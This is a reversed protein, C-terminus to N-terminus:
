RKRRARVEGTWVRKWGKLGFFQKMPEGLKASKYSLAFAPKGRGARKEGTGLLFQPLEKRGGGEPHPRPPPAPSPRPSPLPSRSPSSGGGGLPSSPPFIPSEPRSSPTGPIKSPLRSVRSIASRAQSLGSRLVAPPSSRSSPTVLSAMPTFPTLLPASLDGKSSSRSSPLTARSIKGAKPKVPATEPVPTQRSIPVRVGKWRVFAEAKGVDLVSGPPIIAEMESKGAVSYPTIYATGKKAGKAIWESGRVPGASVVEPPLKELRMDGFYINRTVPPFGFRLSTEGIGSARLFHPSLEPAVYLGPTESSGWGVVTKRPFQATTAHYVRTMGPEVRGLWEEASYIKSVKQFHTYMKEQRALPSGRMVEPPYSPFRVRGEIVGKETIREVPVEKKIGATQVLGTAKQWHSAFGAGFATYGVAVKAVTPLVEHFPRGEEKLHKAEEAVAKVAPAHVAGVALVAGTKKVALPLARVAGGVRTVQPALRAVGAAAGGVAWAAAAGAAYSGLATGALRGAWTFATDEPNVRVTTEGVAVVDQRTEIPGVFREAIWRSASDFTEVVGGAFEGLPGPLAERVAVYFPAPKKREQEALYIAERVEGVKSIEQLYQYPDKGEMLLYQVNARVTERMGAHPYQQQFWDSLREAEAQVSRLYAPYYQTTYYEKYAEYAREYAEYTRHYEEYPIEGKRYAEEKQKVQEELSSLKSELSKLNAEEPMITASVTIGGGGGGSSISGGGGGASARGSGGGGGRTSTTEGGGGSPTWSELVTWGGGGSAQQAQQAEWAKRWLDYAKPIVYQPNRAYEPHERMAQEIFEQPPEKNPDFPPVEM